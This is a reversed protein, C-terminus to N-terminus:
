RNQPIGDMELFINSRRPQEYVAQEIILVEENPNLQREQLLKIERELIQRGQESFESASTRGFLDVNLRNVDSPTLRVEHASASAIGTLFTVATFMLNIAIASPFKIKM